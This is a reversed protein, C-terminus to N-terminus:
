SWDKDKSVTTNSKKANISNELKTQMNSETTNEKALVKDIVNQKTMSSFNMDDGVCSGYLSASYDADMLSYTTQEAGDEITENYTRLTGDQALYKWHINKVLNDDTDFTFSWDYTIAM